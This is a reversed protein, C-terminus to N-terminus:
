ATPGTPTRQGPAQYGQQIVFRAQTRPAQEGGVLGRPVPVPRTAEREEARSGFGFPRGAPIAKTSEVRRTSSFRVLSSIVLACRPLNRLGGSLGVPIASITRSPVFYHLIRRSPPGVREVEAREEESPFALGRALTGIDVSEAADLRRAARLFTSYPRSRPALGGSRPCAGQARGGIPLAVSRALRDGGALPLVHGVFSPAATLCVRWWTKRTGGLAPQSSGTKLAALSTRRCSTELIKRPM